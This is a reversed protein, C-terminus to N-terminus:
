GNIVVRNWEDFGELWRLDIRVAWIDGRV